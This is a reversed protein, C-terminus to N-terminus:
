EQNASLLAEMSTDLAKALKYLTEGTCKEPSTKGNCIDAITSQPLGSLKALKYKTLKKSTLLTNITNM